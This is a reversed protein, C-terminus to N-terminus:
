VAGGGAMAALDEMRFITVYGGEHSLLGERQWAALQRSIRERSAGILTGLESQSLRMKLRRGQKVPVSDTEALNLLTRALRVSLDLFQMEEVQQSTARLRRCLLEILRLGIEAHKEILPLFDRRNLILLEAETLT